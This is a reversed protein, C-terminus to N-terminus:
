KNKSIEEMVEKEAITLEIDVTPVDASYNGIEVNQYHSMLVSILFATIPINVAILVFRTSRKM